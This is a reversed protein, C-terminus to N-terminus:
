TLEGGKLFDRMLELEDGSYGDPDQNTEEMFKLDRELTESPIAEYLDNMTMMM